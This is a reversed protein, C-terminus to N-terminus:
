VATPKIASKRKIGTLGLLASGFLWLAAPVPVAKVDYDIVLKANKYWFDPALCKHKFGNGVAALKGNLIGDLLFSSVDINLDYWGYDNIATKQSNVSIGELQTIKAFEAADRGKKNGDKCSWGSCHGGKFDDVAKIWLKASNIVWNSGISYAISFSKQKNGVLAPADKPTVGDNKYSAYFDITAASVGSSLLALLSALIFYQKKM